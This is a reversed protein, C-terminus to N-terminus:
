ERSRNDENDHGTELSWIMGVPFATAEARGLFHSRLDMDGFAPSAIAGHAQVFRPKCLPSPPLRGEGTDFHLRYIYSRHPHLYSVVGFYWRQNRETRHLTGRQM